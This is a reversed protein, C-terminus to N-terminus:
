KRVISEVRGARGVNYWIGHWLIGRAPVTKLFTGCATFCTLWFAGMLRLLPIHHPMLPRLCSLSVATAALYIGSSVLVPLGLLGTIGGLFGIFAMAPILGMLVLLVGLLVWQSPVCFKLFLIQRDLWARWVDGSHHEARTRLLAGPCLHVRIGREQLYTTLSCDDVVNDSWFVGIGQEHFTRREIAMAGGWPQTFKAVGQLIRMALVCFAYALTVLEMDKPVVEHYGTAFKGQGAAIPHVLRSLFDPSAMHTSDCFAYVDVSSGLAAVATLSNHNKQGCGEARGAVVHTVNPYEAALRDVLVAAPEEATATVLAYKLEGEYRQELLSRLAREMDPHTGACPVVLGVSPWDACQPAPTAAQLRLRRGSAALSFLLAPAALVVVLFVFWM